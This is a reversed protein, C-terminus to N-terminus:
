SVVHIVPEKGAAVSRNWHHCLWFIDVNHMRFCGLTPLLEQFPEMSGDWGLNSGGGHLARNRGDINLYAWGYGASIDEEAPYDIDSWVTEKYVGDAANGRAQGSDNFGEYFAIGIPLTAKTEYSEDMVYLEEKTKNIQIEKIYWDNM